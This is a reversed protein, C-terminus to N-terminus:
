AGAIAARLSELDRCIRDVLGEAGPVAAHETGISRVLTAAAELQRLTANRRADHPDRSSAPWPPPPPSGVPSPRDAIQKRLTEATLGHASLVRAMDATEALALLLHEKGIHGHGLADAVRAAAELARKADAGFPIEVTTSNPPRRIAEEFLQQRVEYVITMPLLDALDGPERLVGLLLHEPEISISGIQSCEYRAYFLARRAQETYREFM